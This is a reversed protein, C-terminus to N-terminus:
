KRRLYEIYDFADERLKFAAIQKYDNYVAYYDKEDAILYPKNDYIFTYGGSDM